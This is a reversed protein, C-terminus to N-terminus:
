FLLSYYLKGWTLFCIDCETSSGPIDRGQPMERKGKESTVVKSVKTNTLNMGMKISQM